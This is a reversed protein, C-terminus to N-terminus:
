EETNLRTNIINNENTLILNFILLYVMFLIVITQIITKKSM